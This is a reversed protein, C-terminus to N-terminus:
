ERDRRPPLRRGNGQKARNQKRCGRAFHNPDGCIFCHDCQDGLGSDRCSACGRGQTVRNRQVDPTPANKKSMAEKIASLDAQVAELAAWM